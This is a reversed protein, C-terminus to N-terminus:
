LILISLLNDWQGWRCGLPSRCVRGIDREQEMQTVALHPLFAEPVLFKGLLFLLFLFFLVMFSSVGPSCCPFILTTVPASSLTRVQEALTRGRPFCTSCYSIPDSNRIEWKQSIRCWAKFSASVRWPISLQHSFVGASHVTPWPPHYRKTAASPTLCALFNSNPVGQLFQLFSQVTLFYKRTEKRYSPSM